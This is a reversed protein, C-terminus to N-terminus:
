KSSIFIHNRSVINKIIIAGINDRGSVINFWFRMFFVNEVVFRKVRKKWFSLISIFVLLLFVINYFFLRKWYKDFCFNSIILCTIFFYFIISGDASNVQLLQVPSVRVLCIKMLSTNIISLYFKLIFWFHM